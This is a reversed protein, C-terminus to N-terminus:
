KPPFDPTKPSEVTGNTFQLLFVVTNYIWCGFKLSSNVTLVLHVVIAHFLLLLPPLQAFVVYLISTETDSTFGKFTSPTIQIFNSMFILKNLMISQCYKWWRGEEHCRIHPSGQGWDTDGSWHGDPGPACLWMIIFIIIIIIIVIVCDPGPQVYDCLPQLPSSFASNCSNM